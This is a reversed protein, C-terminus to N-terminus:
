APVCLVSTSLVLKALLGLSNAEGIILTTNAM